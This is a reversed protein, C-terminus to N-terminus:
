PSNCDRVDTLCFNKQVLCGKKMKRIMLFEKCCRDLWILGRGGFPRWWLKRMQEFTLSATRLQTANCINQGRGMRSSSLAWWATLKLMEFRCVACRNCYPVAQFWTQLPNFRSSSDWSLNWPLSAPARWPWRLRRGLQWSVKQCRPYQICWYRTFTHNDQCTLNRFVATATSTYWSVWRFATHSKKLPDPRKDTVPNWLRAFLPPLELALFLVKDSSMLFFEANESLLNISCRYSDARAVLLSIALIVAFM